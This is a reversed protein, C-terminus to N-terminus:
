THNLLHRLTLTASAREDAVRFEPLWRRIPEDLALKGEEVLQLCLAATYLKTISGIQFLAEPTVPVRTEINVVGSAAETLAGNAWVALSAGPVGYAELRDDLLQRDINM